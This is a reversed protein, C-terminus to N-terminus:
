LNVRKMLRLAVIFCIVSFIVLYLLSSWIMQGNIIAERMSESANTLPLAYLFTQIFTPMASVPFLTGGLFSMPTIVLSSFTAMDQHTKTYTGVAVGLFSFALLTILLGMLFYLNLTFGSVAILGLLIFATCAFGGRVVGVLAKGVTIATIGMPAMILEDFSKYFLKDISIKNGSANYASNMATIAIIGPLVFLLYSDSGNMSDVDTVDIVSGLGYGFAILYLTPLMLSTFLTRKWFRKLFRFDAWLITSVQQWFTGLHGRKTNKYEKIDTIMM